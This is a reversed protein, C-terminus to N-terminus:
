EHGRASTQLEQVEGVFALAIDEGYFPVITGLFLITDM